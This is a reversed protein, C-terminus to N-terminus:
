FKNEGNAAFNHAPYLSLTSDGACAFCHPNPSNRRFDAKQEFLLSKETQIM